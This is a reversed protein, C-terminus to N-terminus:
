TRNSFELMECKQDILVKIERIGKRKIQIRESEEIFRCKLKAFIMEKIELEKVNQRIKTKSLDTWEM